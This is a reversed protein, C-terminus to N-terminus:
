VLHFAVVPTVIMLLGALATGAVFPLLIGHLLWLVAVILAITPRWLWMQRM